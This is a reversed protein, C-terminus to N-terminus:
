HVQFNGFIQIQIFENDPVLPFIVRRVGGPVNNATIHWLLIEDSYLRRVVDNRTKMTYYYYRVISAHETYTGM